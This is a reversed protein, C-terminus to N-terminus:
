AATTPLKSHVPVRCEPHLRAYMWFNGPQGRVLRYCRLYGECEFGCRQVVQLSRTNSELITAQIRLMARQAFAWDVIATCVASAIGQGWVEPALDYTVEASRNVPSVTHLGVTGVLAGTDALVIAFRVQSAPDASEFMAFQPLLDDISQLNWSTHEFVHPLALYQYWAPADSRELARIRVRDHTLQPLIATHM